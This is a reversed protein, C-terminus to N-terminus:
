TQSNNNKLKRIEKTNHIIIYISMATVIVAIGGGTAMIMIQQMQPSSDQGFQSFMATELSLMSVMAAALKIVKSASMVPSNYKRYRFLDIIATTTVWFAYMAMVYILIGRYEFGRDNYVMMLVFGSLILNVIMLIYACLRSRKLEGMRNKGIGSRKVYRILLFRMVAMVAYYVAFIGFWVTNYIVASVANTAIYLLNIGLSMYLSIHTKYAADTLYRGAYKNGYVKGKANRYYKPFAEWFAICAVTLSYFAAVYVIYAVPSNEWSKAFVIVLAAASAIALFIILWVPLFLFKRCIAKWDKM